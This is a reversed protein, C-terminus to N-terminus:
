RDIEDALHEIKADDDDDALSYTLLIPVAADTGHSGIEYERYKPLGTRVTAPNVAGKGTSGSCAAPLKSGAAQPIILTSTPKVTVSSFCYSFRSCM